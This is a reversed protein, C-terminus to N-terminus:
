IKHMPWYNKIKTSESIQVMAQEVNTGNKLQVSAGHFLESDFSKRVTAEEGFSSQCESLSQYGNEFEYIFAGDVIDSYWSNPLAAAAVGVYTTLYLLVKM